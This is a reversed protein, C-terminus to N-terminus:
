RGTVVLVVDGSPAPLNAAQAAGSLLLAGALFSLLTKIASGTKKHIVTIKKCYNKKKNESTFKICSSRKIL